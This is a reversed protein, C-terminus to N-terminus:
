NREGPMYIQEDIIFLMFTRGLVDKASKRSRAWEEALSGGSWVRARERWARGRVLLKGGREESM